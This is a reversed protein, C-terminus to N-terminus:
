QLKWQKLKCNQILYKKYWDKNLQWNISFVYMNVFSSTNGQCLPHLFHNICGNVCYGNNQNCFEGNVCHGCVGTCTRNYFGGVCEVLEFLTLFVIIVVVFVEVYLCWKSFFGFIYECVYYSWKLDKLNAFSLLELVYLFIIRTINQNHINNLIVHIM